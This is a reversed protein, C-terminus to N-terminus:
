LLSVTSSEFREGTPGDSHIAGLTHGRMTLYFLLEVRNSVGLKGFARFLYNKVTHESLGLENAIAKNTKAKAAFQVVQMERTTLELSENGISLAPAPVSRFAELLFKAEQGGAWIFGKRVHQVCELFEAMPLERSFVGRAGSHFANVVSDHTSRNLLMVILVNPHARAVTQALAFRNQSKLDADAGIVVLDVQNTALTQM